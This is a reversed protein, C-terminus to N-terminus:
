GVVPALRLHQVHDFHKRNHTVLPVDLYVATAAIWADAVEIPQGGAFAKHRISAWTECLSEDSHCIKFNTLFQSLRKRREAEWSRRDAWLTLEALTMFSLVVSHGEIIDLYKDALSHGKFIMSVVDTDVVVATM